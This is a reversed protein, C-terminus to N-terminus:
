ARKTDHGKSRDIIFTQQGRGASTDNWSNESQIHLSFVEELWWPFNNLNKLLCKNENQKGRIGEPVKRHCARRNEYATM